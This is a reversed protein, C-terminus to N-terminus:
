LRRCALGGCPPSHQTHRTPGADPVTEQPDILPPPRFLARLLSCNAIHTSKQTRANCMTTVTEWRPYRASATSVRKSAPPGQSSAEWPCKIRRPARRQPRGPPPTPCIRGFDLPSTRGFGPTSRWQSPHSHYDTGCTFPSRSRRPGFGAPEAWGPRVGGNPKAKAADFPAPPVPRREIGPEAHGIGSLVEPSARLGCVEGM